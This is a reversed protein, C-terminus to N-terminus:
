LIQIAGTAGQATNAIAVACVHETGVTATDVEGGSVVYLNDGDAFGGGAAAALGYGRGKHLAWFYHTDTIAGGTNNFGLVTGTDGTGVPAKIVTVLASTTTDKAVACGDAIAEAAKVLMYINGTARDRRLSGTIPWQVVVDDLAAGSATFGKGVNTNVTPEIFVDAHTGSTAATAVGVISTGLLDATYGVGSAACVSDGASLETGGISGSGYIQMWFYEGSAATAGTTNAGVIQHGSTSTALSVSYGGTTNYYVIYGTAISEAALVLVYKKGNFEERIEGVVANKGGVLAITSSHETIKTAFARGTPM